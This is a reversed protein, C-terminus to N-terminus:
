LHFFCVYITQFTMCCSASTYFQTSLILISISLISHYLDSQHPKPYPGTSLEQSRLLSGEPETFHQSTRSYSFLQCSRLFPEAGHTLTFIELYTDWDFFIHKMKAVVKTQFTKRKGTLIWHSSLVHVFISTPRWTFHKNIDLKLWFQFTNVFKLVHSRLSECCHNHLNDYEPIYTTGGFYQDRQVLYMYDCGLICYDGFQDTTSM